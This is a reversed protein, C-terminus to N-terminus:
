DARYISISRLKDEIWINIQSHLSDRRDLYTYPDLYESINSQISSWKDDSLFNDIAIAAVSM